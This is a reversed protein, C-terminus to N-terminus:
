KPIIRKFIGKRTEKDPSKVNQTSNRVQLESILRATKESSHFLQALLKMANESLDTSIYNLQHDIGAMKDLIDQHGLNAGNGSFETIAQTLRTINGDLATVPEFLTLMRGKFTENLTEMQDNFTKVARIVPGEKEFLNFGKQIRTLIDDSLKSFEDVLNRNRIEFSEESQNMRSLMQDFWDKHKVASTNIRESILSLKESIDLAERIDSVLMRGAKEKLDALAEQQNSLSEAMINLLDHVTKLLMPMDSIHSAFQATIGTFREMIQGIKLEFESLVRNFVERFGGEMETVSNQIGNVSSAINRTIDTWSKELEERTTRIANMQTEIAFSLIEHGKMAKEASSEMMNAAKTIYGTSNRFQVSITEFSGIASGLVEGARTTKQILEGQSEFQKQLTENFMVIKERTEAQLATTESIVAKLGNLQEKFTLNMNDVYKELIAEIVRSQKEQTTNFHDTILRGTKELHLDFGKFMEEQHSRIAAGNEKLMQHIDQFVPVIHAKVADGFAIGLKYSMRSAIDEPLLTLQKSIAEQVTRHGNAFHEETQFPFFDAVRSDLEVVNKEIRNILIRHILSFVVSLIIGVLSTLFALSLGNILQAVGRQLQDIQEIDLGKLGLVLGYFTGFVGMGVFIGPLTEAVRQFGVAEIVVGPTLYEKLQLPLSARKGNPLALDQWIDHFQVFFTRAWPVKIFLHAHIRKRNTDPEEKGRSVKTLFFNGWILQVWRTLLPTLCIVCALLFIVMQFILFNVTNTCITNIGYQNWIKLLTDIM